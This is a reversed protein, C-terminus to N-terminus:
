QYRRRFMAHVRANAGAPAGLATVRGGFVPDPTQRDPDNDSRATEWERFMPENQNLQRWRAFDARHWGQSRAVEDLYPWRDPDGELPAVTGARRRALRERMLNDMSM